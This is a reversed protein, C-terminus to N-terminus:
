RVVWSNVTMGTGCSNSTTPPCAHQNANSFDNFTVQAAIYPTGICPAHGNTCQSATFATVSVARGGAVPALPSCWAVIPQGNITFPNTDASCAAAAQGPAFANSYRIDWIAVQTAGGASYLASRTSKFHVANKINNGSWALLGTVVTGVIVVFILALILVAGREDGASKESPEVQGPNEPRGSYRMSM